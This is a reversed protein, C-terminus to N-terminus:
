VAYKSYKFCFYNIPTRPHRAFPPCNFVFFFFNSVIKLQLWNFIINHKISKQRFMNIYGLALHNLKHNM